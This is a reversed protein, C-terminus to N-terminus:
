FFCQFYFLFSFSPWYEKKERRKKYGALSKLFGRVRYESRNTRCARVCSVGVLFVTSFSLDVTVERKRCLLFRTQEPLAWNYVLIRSGHIHSEFTLVSTYSNEGNSNGEVM